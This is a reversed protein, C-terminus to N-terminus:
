AHALPRKYLGKSLEIYYGKQSYYRIKVITLLVLKSKYYEIKSSIMAITTLFCPFDVRQSDERGLWLTPITISNLDSTKFFKLRSLIPYYLLSYSYKYHSRLALSLCCLSGLISRITYFVRPFVALTM